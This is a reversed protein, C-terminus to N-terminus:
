HQQAPAIRGSLVRISILFPGNKRGVVEFHAINEVGGSSFSKVPNGGSLDAVSPELNRAEMEVKLSTGTVRVTLERHEGPKLASTNAELALGIFRMSVLTATKKGCTVEVSAAGPDLDTPPLVDLSTPSATLVLAQQGAITVHNADADGCFGIGTVEFRDSLSAIKPLSRIEMSDSTAETPGLITMYVKGPRGAISAAIVGPTLPAVFMARGTADTKLHDGNSFSVSVEPTLRGNVDLVALTAREGSVVQRPLLLIRAGSAAPPQQAHGALGALLGALLTGMFTGAFRAMVTLNYRFLGERV